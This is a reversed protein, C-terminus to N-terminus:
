FACLPEGAASTAPPIPSEARSPGDVPSNCGTGTGSSESTRASSDDLEPAAPAELELETDLETATESFSTERTVQEPEPEAEQEAGDSEDEEAIPVLRELKPSTSFYRRRGSCVLYEVQGSEDMVYIPDPLLDLPVEDMPNLLQLAGLHEARILLTIAGSGSGSSSSASSTGAEDSQRASSHKPRLLVPERKHVVIPDSPSAWFREARQDTETFSRVRRVSRNTTSAASINHNNSTTTTPTAKLSNLSSKPSRSTSKTHAGSDRELTGTPSSTASNSQEDSLASNPSHLEVERKRRGFMKSLIRIIPNGSRSSTPKSPSSAPSHGLAPQSLFSNSNSPSRGAAPSTGETANQKQEEFSSRRPKSKGSGGSSRRTSSTRASSTAAPASLKKPRIAIPASRPTAIPRSYYHLSATNLPPPELPSSSHKPSRHPGKSGGSTTRVRRKESVFPLKGNVPVPLMM